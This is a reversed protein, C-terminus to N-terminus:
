GAATPRPRDRLRQEMGLLGSDLTTQILRSRVQGHRQEPDTLDLGPDALVHVGTSNGAGPNM